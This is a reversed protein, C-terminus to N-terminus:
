ATGEVAGSSRVPAVDERRKARFWREVTLHSLVALMFSVPFVVAVYFPWNFRDGMFVARFVLYHWLYLGYSIQGVFVVPRWALWSPLQGVLLIGTALEMLTIGARMVSTDLWLFYHAGLFIVLLAPWAPFQPIWSKDMTAVLCGLILGTSHTDFRFYGDHWSLQSWRWITVVAYAILLQKATPRFRVFLLPWLLYFHEEVSLSWTHGIYEPTATFAYAYDSM